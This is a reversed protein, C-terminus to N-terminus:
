MIKDIYVCFLMPRHKIYDPFNEYIHMQEAKVIYIFDNSLEFKLIFKSYDKLLPM